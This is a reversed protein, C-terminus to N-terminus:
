EEIKRIELILKPFNRHYEETELKEAFEEWSSQLNPFNNSSLQYLEWFIDEIKRADLIQNYTNEVFVGTLIQKIDDEDLFQLIPLIMDVGNGYASQYSYSRLFYRIARKKIEDVAISSFDQTKVLQTVGRYKCIDGEKDQDFLEHIKAIDLESLYWENVDTIHEFFNPMKREHDNQIEQVIDTLKGLVYNLDDAPLNVSNVHACTNRKQLIQQAEKFFQQDVGRFVDKLKGIIKDEGQNNQHLKNLSFLNGDFYDAAKDSPRGVNILSLFIGDTVFSDGDECKEIERLQWVKEFIFLMFINWAYIITADYLESEVVKVLNQKYNYKKANCVYSCLNEIKEALNENM